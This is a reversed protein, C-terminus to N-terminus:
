LIDKEAEISLIYLWACRIFIIVKNEAIANKILPVYKRGLNYPSRSFNMHANLKVRQQSNCYRVSEGRWILHLDLLWCTDRLQVLAQGNSTIM